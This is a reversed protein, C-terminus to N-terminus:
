EPLTNPNYRECREKQRADRLCDAYRRASREGDSRLTAEAENANELQKLTQEQGAMVAEAAGGQAAADLANEHRRDAIAVLAFLLGVFASIGAIWIWNAVGRFGAAMLFKMLM